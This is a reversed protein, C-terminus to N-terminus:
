IFSQFEMILIHCLWVLTYDYTEWLLSSSINKPNCYQLRSMLPLDTSEVVNLVPVEVPEPYFVFRRKQM